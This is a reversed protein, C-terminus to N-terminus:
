TLIHSVQVTVGPMRDAETVFAVAEVQNCGTDVGVLVLVGVIHLGAAVEPGPELLETPM